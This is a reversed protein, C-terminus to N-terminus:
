VSRRAPQAPNVSSPNVLCREPHEDTPAHTSIPHRPELQTPTAAPPFPREQLLEGVSFEQLQELTVGAERIEKILGLLDGQALHEAMSRRAMPQHQHPPPPATCACPAARVLDDAGDKPVLDYRGMELIPQELAGQRIVHTVQLEAVGSSFHLSCNTVFQPDLNLSKLIACGLDRAGEINRTTEVSAAAKAIPSPESESIAAFLRDVASRLKSSMAREAPPSTPLEFDESKFGFSELKEIEAASFEQLQELTAGAKRADTLLSHLNGSALHEACLTGLRGMSADSSAQEAEWREARGAAVRHFLESSRWQRRERIAQVAAPAPQGSRYPEAM